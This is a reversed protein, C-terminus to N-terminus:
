PELRVIRDGNHWFSTGPPLPTGLQIDNELAYFGPEGRMGAAIAADIGAAGFAERMADVFAAALPMQARM